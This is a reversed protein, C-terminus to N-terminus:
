RGAERPGALMQKPLPQPLPKRPLMDPRTAAHYVFSTMIASAQMLDAPVARDYVDLDSHHTRTMYDLPDQIFQFGPLGVGDFSKHDTGGTDALALTTAGLDRFPALWAEFIPRAMDNGQLYVGRVRGSGNDLNFYGSLRAHEPKVAMTVPDAFHEKVYARSGLLGQEEGSWLVLRVTRDMKLDLTKLIRMAELVVACGAANDTAGTGAHWSDLHAGLMVIEEKKRGGPIEAIVNSADPADDIFAVDIDLGVRAPVGKEVLRVLRDYSEPVLVVYPPSVPADPDGSRVGEVFVTGGSGRKDGALAAMVGEDRLFGSLRDLIRRRRVYFDSTVEMPLSDTIKEREERDAPLKRLPWELAPLPEPEPGQALLDLKADDFKEVLPKAPLAPSPPPELLVIKGKLKGKQRAAYDRIGDALADLDWIESTQKDAFVPALVVEGSVPGGTGASWAKPVGHLPAYVPAELNASFRRLSWGRGFRGWTELHPDSVGWKKLSSMAWEAASRWGPSGTLRPGNVDTLFFLHDMVQSNRFAEDKIRHVVNLDVREELVAGVSVGATLVAVALGLVRAKM